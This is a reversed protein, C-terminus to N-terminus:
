IETIISVQAENLNKLRNRFWTLQRKAYQRTHLKAAQVAGERTLKGILYDRLEPVGIAKMVPMKDNIKLELLRKVEDEAGNQMMMDFRQSCKDALDQLRPLIAVVRFDAEPLPKVLPMRFWEAISKNTDMFIELARRVRTMDNPNVMKAGQKDVEQLKAFIGTKGNQALIAAVKEKVEQSTEPIPSCGKILAEIYFGTGGVVIPLKKDQWAKKIEKTALKLWESVSNKEDAKLIGYLKHEAKAKDEETPAVSIVPICDYIQSADANIIVGNYKLAAKIALGSKGSATPGAVVIVSKENLNDFITEVENKPM